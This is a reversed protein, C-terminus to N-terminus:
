VDADAKLLAEAQAIGAPHGVDCWGGDHVTGFLRGLEIARDWVKNLSFVDEQITNLLDLKMIQIGSYVHGPGRLVQGQELMFDGNGKHGTAREPALLLLLADMKDPDWQARLEEFPNAGTWVADSNATFATQTELLPRAQRLGGGTDLIDPMEHSLRVGRPELHARLPDPLYHLNAVIRNIGADTALDLVHDVLPKGAVEIMPKPVHDTLPRMRTGFGAAFIM